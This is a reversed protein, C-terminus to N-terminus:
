KKYFKLFINEIQLLLVDYFDLEQTNLYERDFFGLFIGYAVEENIIVPLLIFYKINVPINLVEFDFNEKTGQIRKKDYVFKKLSEYDDILVSLFPTKKIRNNTKYLIELSNEDVKYLFGISARSMGLASDMIRIYLKKLSKEKSLKNLKLLISIQRNIFGLHKYSELMKKEDQNKEYIEGIKLAYVNILKQEYTEVFFLYDTYSISLLGKNEGHIKIPASILGITETSYNDTKFERDDIRLMIQVKEPYGMSKPAIESVFKECLKYFDNEKSALEDLAYLGTLEKLREKLNKESEELMQINNKNSIAEAFLDAAIHLISVVGRELFVPKDVSDMAFFGILEDSLILPIYICGKTNFFEFMEKEKSSGIKEIDSIYLVEKKEVMSLFWKYTLIPYMTLDDKISELGLRYWEYIKKVRNKNKKLIYLYSRDMSCFQTIKELCLVINENIESSSKNVLLNSINIMLKELKIRHSIEIEAQKQKNIDRGVAVITDLKNNEMVGKASWSFWKWGKKTLSRHQFISKYPFSKIKNISKEVRKRDSPHVLSLYYNGILERENKGFVESYINNVYTIKGKSDIMIILDTQNEILFRYKEESRNLKGYVLVNETMDEVICEVGIVDNDSSIIPILHYNLYVKKGWRTIYRKKSRIEKMDSLCRSYDGAIGADILPKYRLINFSKTEEESPSGLIDLMKPNVDIIDGKTNVLVVGVPIKRIILNSRSVLDASGTGKVTFSKNNRDGSTINLVKAM